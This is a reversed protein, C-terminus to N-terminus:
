NNWIKLTKIKEKTQFSKESMGLYKYAQVMFVMIYYKNRDPPNKSIFKHGFAVAGKIHGRGFIKEFKAIAKAITEDNTKM